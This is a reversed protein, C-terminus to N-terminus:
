FAYKVHYSSVKLHYVKIQCQLISEDLRIGSNYFFVWVKLIEPKQTQPFYLLYIYIPFDM